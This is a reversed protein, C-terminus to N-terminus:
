MMEVHILFTGDYSPTNLLFPIKELQLAHLVCYMFQIFVQFKFCVFFHLYVPKESCIIYKVTNDFFINM